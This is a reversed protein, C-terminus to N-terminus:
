NEKAMVSYIFHLKSWFNFSCFKLNKSICTFAPQKMFHKQLEHPYILRTNNPEIINIISYFMDDDDEKLHITGGTPRDCDAPDNRNSYALAPTTNRNKTHTDM